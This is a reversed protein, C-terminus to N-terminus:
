IQTIQYSALLWSRHTKESSRCAQGTLRVHTGAPATWTPKTCWNGAHLWFNLTGTFAWGWLIGENSSALYQWISGFKPPYLQGTQLEQIGGEVPYFGFQQAQLLLGMKIPLKGMTIVSCQVHEVLRVHWQVSHLTGWFCTIHQEDHGRNLHNSFIKHDVTEQNYMGSHIRM